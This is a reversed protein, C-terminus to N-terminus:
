KQFAVGAVYVNSEAVTIGVMSEIANKVNLQVSQAVETVVAGAKILLHVDVICSNDAGIVIRIGKPISKKVFFDTLDSTPTVAALSHVGDSELAANAAIAAIVEDSIRIKGQGDEIFYYEKSNEGM